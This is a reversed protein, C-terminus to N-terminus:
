FNNEKEYQDQAKLATFLIEQIHGRFPDDIAFRKIRGPHICFLCDGSYVPHQIIHLDPSESVATVKSSSLGLAFERLKGLADSPNRAFGSNVIIQPKSSQIEELKNEDMLQIDISNKKLISVLASDNTLVGRQLSNLFNVLRDLKAEKNKIELYEKVPNNFPFAKELKDEEFVSVGFETLIVYHMVLYNLTEKLFPLM